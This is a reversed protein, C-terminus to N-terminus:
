LSGGRAPRGDPNVEFAPADLGIPVAGAPGGRRLHQQYEAVEKEYQAVLEAALDDGGSLRELVIPLEGELNPNAGVEFIQVVGQADLVVLTPAAPVGFVDRGCARLDRLLPVGIRWQRMQAELTQQGVSSPETCVAFVAATRADLDRYVKDLQELTSRCAPHFSFWVLVTIRGALSAASVDGAPGSFRFEGPRRGFLNSPLPQPPLVFASVTRADAPPTFRLRPDDRHAAFSADRFEAVMEAEPGAMAPTLQRPFELRRLLLQQQDIFLVFRGGATDAALRHCDRGEVREPALRQWSVDDGLLGELPREDFLLALPMPPGGLGGTLADALLPDRLVDALKITDRAPLSLVQGDLNNSAADALTAFLRQGDCVVRAQYASVGLRNGLTIVSLPAEDQTWGGPQRYRLQLVGRDSYAPAAAYAAIMRAVIQRPDDEAAAPPPVGVESKGQDGGRCGVLSLLIPFCAWWAARRGTGQRQLQKWM